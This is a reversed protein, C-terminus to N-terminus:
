FYKVNPVDKADTLIIFNRLLVPPKITHVFEKVARLHDGLLYIDYGKKIWKKLVIGHDRGLKKTVITM